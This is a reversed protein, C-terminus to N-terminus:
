AGTTPEEGRSTTGHKRDLDAMEDDALPALESGPAAGIDRFFRELGPPAIVWVIEAPSDGTNEVGHWTGQPIYITTGPEVHAQEDGLTATGEGRHM